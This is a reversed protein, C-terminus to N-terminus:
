YAEACCDCVIRFFPAGGQFMTWLPATILVLLVKLSVQKM